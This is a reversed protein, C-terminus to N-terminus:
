LGTAGGGGATKFIAFKFIADEAATPNASTRTTITATAGGAAIVCRITEAATELQVMAIAQDPAVARDLTVTYIGTHQAGPRTVVAGRQFFGVASALGPAVGTGDIRGCAVLEAFKPNM